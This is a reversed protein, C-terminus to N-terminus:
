PFLAVTETIALTHGDSQLIAMNEDAKGSSSLTTNRVSRAFLTARYVHFQQGPPCPGSYGTANRFANFLETSGPPMASTRSAGEPLLTSTPPLDVIAWHQLIFGLHPTTDADHLIFVVSKTGRPPANWYYGPSIDEGYTFAVPYASSPCAHRNPIHEFLGYNLSFVDWSASLGVLAVMFVVLSKLLGM